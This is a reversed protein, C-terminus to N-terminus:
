GGGTCPIVGTLIGLILGGGTVVGAGSAALFAIRSHRPWALLWAACVLFVGVAALLALDLLRLPWDLADWHKLERLLGPGLIFTLVLMACSLVPTRKRMAFEM